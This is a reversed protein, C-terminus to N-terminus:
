CIRTASTIKGRFAWSCFNQLRRKNFV